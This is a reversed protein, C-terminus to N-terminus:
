TATNSQVLHADDGRNYMLARATFGGVQSASKGPFIEVKLEHAVLLQVMLTGEISTRPRVRVHQVFDYGNWTSGDPKIYDWRVLEYKVPGDGVQVEGPDPGNGRVTFQAPQGAFNGISLIVASPDLPDYAVSLHGAWYNSPKAPDDGGLYGNTGVRFWNGVLKGELDYDIKGDIPAATRLYKTTVAATVERTFYDTPPVTHVKWPEANDYAVAVLLGSLTKTLDWVAFDLSEGGIRGIVQGARVPINTGSNTASSWNSPLQVRIAPALGTVLDAYTFFTCSYAIVFRFQETGPAVRDEAPNGIYQGRHTIEVITGDMPSLVEYTDRPAHPNVQYYYQHDIPTVHGGATVGYPYVVGVDAMHMPASTLQTAGAGHCNGHSLRLGLQNLAASASPSPTASPTPSTRVSSAKPHGQSALFLGGGAGLLLLLAGVAGAVWLRKM